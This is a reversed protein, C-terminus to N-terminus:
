VDVDFDRICIHIIVNRNPKSTARKFLAVGNPAAHALFLHARFLHALFLHALFLHSSAFAAAGLTYRGCLCILLLALVAGSTSFLLWRSARVTYM